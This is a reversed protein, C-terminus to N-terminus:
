NQALRSIGAEMLAMQRDDDDGNIWDAYVKFFMELSHGMQKAMYAPNLGSMLGLTAYTHRTNYPRRHRIGLRKLTPAWFHSDTIRAYQWPASYYPDHFVEQGAEYTLAKQSEIAAMSQSNLRVVRTEMTKTTDQDEDYVNVSDILVTKKNLDVNAWKLAIVESTRLGAYFQFQYINHIQVDYKTQLEALIIRVEDQTFPDPKPKQVKGYDLGDCPNTSIQKDLVALDFVSRIISLQNNRSKNSSWTGQQLAKKIDSHVFSRIPKNEMHVKWFLDKHRRYQSKTSAKLELLEHWRDILDYFLEDGTRGSAKPANKSDPFTARYDFIGAAIEKKVQIVLRAAYKINAPTPALPAGDLIVPERVQKGQFTFKVRISTERVEVGEIKARGV